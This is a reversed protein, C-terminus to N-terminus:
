ILEIQDSDENMHPDLPPFPGGWGQFIVFIYPKKAISTRVGKFFVFSGLWCEIYSWGRCAQSIKIRGGRM